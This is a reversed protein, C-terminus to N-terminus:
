QNEKLLLKRLKAISKPLQQGELTALLAKIDVPPNKLTNLQNEVAQRVLHANLATLDLIFDDPHQVEVGYQDLSKAPFDKLNFTVIVEADSKIAAALVHRDNVDPLDLGDILDEYGTVLCDRVHKNMLQKTRELQSRNLDPRNKLVNTIWEEQIEETWRAQFLGTLALWMLLDRLAASYLICADYVVIFNSKPM